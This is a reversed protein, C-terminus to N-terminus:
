GMFTSGRMRLPNLVQIGNMIPEAMYPLSPFVVYYVNFGHSFVVCCAFYEKIKSAAM